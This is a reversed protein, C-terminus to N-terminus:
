IPTASTRPLPGNYDDRYLDSSTAHFHLPEGFVVLTDNGPNVKILPVINVTFTDAVIIPCDANHLKLIYDTTQEPAAVVSTAFPVSAITGNKAGTFGGSNVWTYDTGTTVVAQLPASQGHCITTDRPDIAAQPLAGKYLTVFLSDTLTACSNQETAVIWGSQPGVTVTIANGNSGSQISWGDPGVLCLDRWEAFSGFVERRQQFLL